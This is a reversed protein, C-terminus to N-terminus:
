HTAPRTGQGAAAAATARALGASTTCLFPRHLAWHPLQCCPHARWTTPAPQLLLRRPDQQAARGQVVQKQHHEQARRTGGPSPSAGAAAAVMPAPVSSSSVPSCTAAAM